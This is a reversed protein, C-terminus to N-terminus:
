ALMGDVVGRSARPLPALCAGLPVASRARATVFPTPKTDGGAVPIVAVDVAFREAYADLLFGARMALGNGRDSPMTPAIFLAAPRGNREPDVM